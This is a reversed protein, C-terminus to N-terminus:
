CRLQAIQPLSERESSQNKAELVRVMRELSENTAQTRAAQETAAHFRTQLVRIDAQLQENQSELEFLRQLKANPDM